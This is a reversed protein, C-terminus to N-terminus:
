FANNSVYSSLNPVTGSDTQTDGAVAERRRGRLGDRDCWGRWGAIPYIYIYIYLSLSLSICM